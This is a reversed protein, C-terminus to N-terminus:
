GGETWADPDARWRELSELQNEDLDGRSRAAEMLPGFGTLPLASVGAEDFRGAADAFGYSFIALVAEVTVGDERLAEVARLASGGTSILDEVLVVRDGSEVIGEIQNGRGHGKASSRVYAMPLELRDALWAAHPIGATATGVVREPEVARNRVVEAFRRAIRGRLDPYSLTLRNDCYIPSRRGSSWTFPDDPRVLVAGIELLSTALKRASEADLVPDPM